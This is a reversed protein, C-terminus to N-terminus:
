TIKKQDEEPELAVQRWEMSDVDLYFVDNTFKSTTRNGGEEFSGTSGGFIFYKWSPISPAMIASHNWRPIEHSLEPDKWENNGIEYIMANSFQTSINWGGFIILKDQNAMITAAHGCRAEPPNGKPELKQWEYTEIDLMYLDDFNQRAYGVGGSGGFVYVKNKHFTATHDGRPEPAGIKSEANKPSGQSKQNPPQVWQWNATKM